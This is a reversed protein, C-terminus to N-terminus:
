KNQFKISGYFEINRLFLMFKNSQSKGKMTLQVSRFYSIDNVPLTAEPHSMSIGNLNDVESIVVNRNDETSGTLIWSSFFDSGDTTGVLIHYKTFRAIFNTFTITLSQNPSNESAWWDGTWKSDIIKSLVQENSNNFSKAKIKLIGIDIPNAGYKDFLFHFIGNPCSKDSDMTEKIRSEIAVIRSKNDTIQGENRSQKKELQQQSKEVKKVRNLLEDKEKNIQDSVFNKLSYQIEEIQRQLKEIQATMKTEVEIVKEEFQQSKEDMVKETSIFEKMREESNKPNVFLKANNAEVAFLEEIKSNSM